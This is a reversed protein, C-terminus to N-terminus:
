LDIVMGDYALEAGEPHRLTGSEHGVRHSIHTIIGRKVGLDRFLGLTEPINNHAHHEGFHIGSAVMVDIKGRWSELNEQPFGKFDTLYAFRGFKFGCSVFGGHPLRIPEIEWGSIQFREDPIERIEVMPKAGSYVTDEFAYAFRTRFEAIYDPLLYCDVVHPSVFSYARLDDFGHCHDAHTHTYLVASIAAIRHSLMQQRFDPTTDVILWKNGDMSLCISSRLRKDRPDLSSCVSCSCGIVPVGTSTGSGLIIVKFSKVVELGM